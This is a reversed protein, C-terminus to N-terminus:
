GLAKRILLTLIYFLILIYIYEVWGAALLVGLYANHLLKLSAFAGLISLLLNWKILIWFTILRLPRPMKIVIKGIKTLEGHRVEKLLGINPTFEPKVKATIFKKLELFTLVHTVDKQSYYKDERSLDPPVFKTFFDQATFAGLRVAELFVDDIFKEAQLM